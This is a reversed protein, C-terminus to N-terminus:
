FGNEEGMLEMLQTRARSMRSKITGETLNLLDAIESYNMGSFYHLMIPGRYIDSLVSVAQM